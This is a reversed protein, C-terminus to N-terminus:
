QRELVDLAAHGEEALEVLESDLLRFLLTRLKRAAEAPSLRPPEHAPYPQMSRIPSWGPCLHQTVEVHWGAVDAAHLFLLADCDEELYVTDGHVYSYRSILNTLGLAAIHARPVELWGHGPDDHHTLTLTLKTM